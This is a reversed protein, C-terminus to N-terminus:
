PESQTVSAMFPCTIASTKFSTAVTIQVKYLNPSPSLNPLMYGYMPNKNRSEKYSSVVPIERPLNLTYSDGRGREGGMATHTGPSTPSSHTSFSAFPVHMTMSGFISSQALCIVCSKCNKGTCKVTTIGPLPPPCKSGRPHAYNAVGM